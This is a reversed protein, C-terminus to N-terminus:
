PNEQSVYNVIKVELFNLFKWLYWRAFSQQYREERTRQHVQLHTGISKLAPALENMGSM